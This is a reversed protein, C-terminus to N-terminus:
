NNSNYYSECNKQMIDRCTEKLREAEEERPQTLNPYQPKDINLTYKIKGNKTKSQLITVPLIPVNSDYSFM